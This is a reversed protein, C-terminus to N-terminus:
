GRADPVCDPHEGFTTRFRDGEAPATSSPHMGGHKVPGEFGGYLPALGGLLWGFSARAEEGAVGGGASGGPGGCHEGGEFRRWKWPVVVRGKGAARDMLLSRFDPSM